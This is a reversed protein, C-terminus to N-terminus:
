RSAAVINSAGSQKGDSTIATVFYLNGILKHDTTTLLRVAHQGLTRPTQVPVTGVLQATM